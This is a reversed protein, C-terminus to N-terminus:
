SSESEPQRYAPKRWPPLVEPDLSRYGDRDLTELPVLRLGEGTTTRERVDRGPLAPRFGIRVRRSGPRHGRVLSWRGKGPIHGAHSGRSVRTWGEGRVWVNRCARSKCGQWRRHSSARAWVSGDRDIRVAYAEWDDRHFGPYTGLLRLPSHNWVADSGAVATNSDPFYLWYQLHTGGGARVIRTFATAPAGARSRHVDLERDDPGDACRRSRCTRWDVPLQAEGPEYVIGPAHERLLAADRDGYARALAADGDDCGSKLACVLRHALFGGFSRGDVRPVGAALAGVLVVSVVLLLATWEIAAQGHEGRM